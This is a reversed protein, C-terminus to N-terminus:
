LNKLSLCPPQCRVSRKLVLLSHVGVNRVESGPLIKGLCLLMEREGTAM